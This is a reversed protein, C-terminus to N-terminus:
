KEENLSATDSESGDETELENTENNMVLIPDNVQSNRSDM